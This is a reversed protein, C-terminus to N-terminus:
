GALMAVICFTGLEKSPKLPRKTLSYTLRWHRSGRVVRNFTPAIAARLALDVKHSLEMEHTVM